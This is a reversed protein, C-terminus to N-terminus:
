SSPITFKNDKRNWQTRILPRKWAGWYGSFQCTCHMGVIDYQLLPAWFVHSIIHLDLTKKEGKLLQKYTKKEFSSLRNKLGHNCTEFPSHLGATMSLTMCKFNVGFYISKIQSCRMNKKQYCTHSNEKLESNFAGYCNQQFHYLSWHLSLIKNM